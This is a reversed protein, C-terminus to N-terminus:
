KRRLVELEIFELVANIFFILVKRFLLFYSSNEKNIFPEDMILLYENVIKTRKGSRIQKNFIHFNKHPGRQLVKGLELPKKMILIPFLPDTV